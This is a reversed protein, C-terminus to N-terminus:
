ATFFGTITLRGTAPDAALGHGPSIAGSHLMRGRYVLARNYVGDFLATREFLPTAGFPYAAPPTGHTRLEGTLCSRYGASRAADLTEFGTGRHRYFGTGDDGGPVLYHVLALQGPDLADVHPLRQEVGLAAPPTTVLAFGIDLVRATAAVGFVQNLVAALLARHDALYAAPVPARLGPYHHGASGFRQARAAARLAEPDAAFDEIVAVPEGERGIRRVTIRPTM